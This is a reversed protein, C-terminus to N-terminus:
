AAAADDEITDHLHRSLEVMAKRFAQHKKLEPKQVLLGRFFLVRFELPLRNVYTAV